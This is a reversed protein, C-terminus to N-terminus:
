GGLRNESDRHWRCFLVCSEDLSLARGDHNMDGSFVLRSGRSFEQFNRALYSEAPRAAPCCSRLQLDVERFMRDSANQPHNGLAPRWCRGFNALIHGFNAWTPGVNALQGDAPSPSVKAVIQGVEASAPPRRWFFMGFHKRGYMELPLDTVECISDPPGDQSFNAPSSNRPNRLLGVARRPLM